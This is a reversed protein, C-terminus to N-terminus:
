AFPRLNYLTFTHDYVSLNNSCDYDHLLRIAARIKGRTDTSKIGLYDLDEERLDKFSEIDEYGNLVFM